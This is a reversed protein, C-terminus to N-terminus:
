PRSWHRLSSLMYNLIMLLFVSGEHKCSFKHVGIRHSEGRSELNAGAVSQQLFRVLRRFCGSRKVGRGQPLKARFPDGAALLSPFRSNECALIAGFDSNKHAFLIGIRRLFKGTYHLRSCGNKTDDRLAGAHRSYFRSHLLSPTTHVYGSDTAHNLILKVALPSLCIRSSM